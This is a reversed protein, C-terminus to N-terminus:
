IKSTVSPPRHKNIFDSIIEATPNIEVLHVYHGGDILHYEFDPNITQMLSVAEDFYSKDEIENYLREESRGKIFCHPICKIRRAMELSVNRSITFFYKQVRRDRSYCFKSSDTKSQFIGRRLMIEAPVRNDKSRIQKMTQRVMEEYEYATPEGTLQQARLDSQVTNNLTRQMIEVSKTPNIVHPRLFSIGIIMDVVDPFLSAYIFSHVSSISHGLLSIRKWQYKVRILHLVYVFFETTYVQGLPIASSQGHGPLDIALYSVHDPLLPLLCDFTGANHERGHLAVIPRITQPGWWKGAIHGWPVDIQVEIVKLM